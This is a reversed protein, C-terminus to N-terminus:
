VVSKRDLNTASVIGGGGVLIYGQYTGILNWHFPPWDPNWATHPFDILMTFIPVLRLQDPIMLTALVLLFLVERGPFRLRAFAYGGISALILNCVTVATAVIFSNLMYKKFNFATLAEDYAKFSPDNPVLDFGKVSEPLSKLSTSFSWFFPTFYLLAILLMLAYVLTQIALESRERGPIHTTSRTGIAPEEGHALREVPAVHPAAEPETAL